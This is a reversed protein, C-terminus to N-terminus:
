QVAELTVAVQRSLGDRVVELRVEDGAKHHGLLRLL